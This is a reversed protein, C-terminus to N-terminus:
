SYLVENSTEKLLSGELRKVVGAVYASDTVLNLPQKFLQFVRVVAALEVIQPSGQGTEVNSDWEATASNMWAIVSKHTKGSGDTFVTIGDLPEESIRPRKRYCLHSQLVRHQPFHITCIGPFGLLAILLDKSKQMAWDFYDKKLPLHITSFERGSMTLLRTRAKIIIQAAMELDTLITKSPRYPLFIWEIILLSDRQSSDWQFILGHFQEKEGLVALAFLLSEVFRHAQRKQIADTVQELEKRAESTLARPSKIDTDGRLLDLLAPIDNNTIRLIPRMWNIEGLLQQLDHLNNVKMSAEMKQPRITRESFKWGLYKWQAVEQIKSASIELGAKQVEAIVCDRAKQLEQQTAAAILLDDMYHIIKVKPFKKRAPSLARAVYWQCTTPSNKLGQPLIVWHYRQLPTEKNISPVSFALRPANDPHLPISFFCDKIDIVVLPWDRPIMSVSPLGLQLPGMDKLVENIKRLDHLLRWTGSVKKKIVFVLFNSPSDTTKIHGKQLQEQVLNRLASLKKRELPWQDVWVPDNTKWTLKLTALAATVGIFFGSGVENGM